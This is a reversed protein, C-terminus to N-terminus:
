QKAGGSDGLYATMVRPDRVIEQPSGEAFKEGSNLVVIRDCTRVIAKMDHEIVVQTLGRKKVDLILQILDESEHPNLGGM